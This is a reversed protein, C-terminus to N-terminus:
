VGGAGTSIYSHLFHTPGDVEIAVNEGTPLIVAIDINFLGDNTRQEHTAGFCGPLNTVISFVDQQTRSPKPSLAAMSLDSKVKIIAETCLARLDGVIDKRDLLWLCSYLM